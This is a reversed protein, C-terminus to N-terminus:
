IWWTQRRREPRVDDGGFWAPLVFGDHRRRVKVRLDAVAADSAVGAPDPDIEAVEFGASWRLDSSCM